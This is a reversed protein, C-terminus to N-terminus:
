RSGALGSRTIAADNGGLYSSVVVPDALVEEASGTAIVSGQELAILRDVVSTLLPMDHEIIMVTLDLEDRMSRIVPELAEAERQAIGSSPEDLMVLRPRHAVLAAIDVIRRSGTSLEHVFKTRYAELGFMGILRDVSEGVALETEFAAPLWLAEMVPNRVDLWREHAVAITQEVTLSPFLAADQFSRGLGAAARRHPAMNTIDTGNMTLHGEDVRTFGSIIDFLTTKGAGNPGILGLIEGKEVRMSVHSVASIGGFRRTVDIIELAPPSHRLDVSEPSEASEVELTEAEGTAETEAHQNGEGDVRVGDTGGVHILGGDPLSDLDHPAEHRPGTVLSPGAGSDAVEHSSVEIEVDASSAEMGKVAGELFVSRLVDPRNLLEATPGSFRVEGKEMFYARDALTLAVNVSQEVVIVTTGQDAMQRVIDLLQAVVLPALGLSLEDIMVLRPHSLFSMGLALMQQQGGSLNAAPEHIRDKLIPFTEYVGDIREHVLSRNHRDMWAAAQLNEAVTLSPFVGRGGPVQVLGKGAIENPPAHTIDVGDFLVAGRDAEAVGCIAKLLTSKGAGNTGLLAVIEGEDVEIDVDFLVQVDGYSVEIGRVLLLKAEGARRQALVESRAASTTWVDEMDRKIFVGASQISLGGIAFMPAMALMGVRIGWADGFVGILPLLVLGPIVFASMMSFGMARSRAPIAVSLAALIGPTLFALSGSILANLIVAVWPLKIEGITIFWAPSLAFGVAFVAVALTVVGLFRFVLSPDKRFLRTGVAAGVILGAIQAPETLSAVVGRSREDLGFEEAYLFSAFSVFGVIAPALFPLTRYIRRLSDVKWCMRWAEVMSPPPEEVDLAEDSAGAAEREWRGRVPEKITLALLSVALIIPGFILFPVRWSFYYAIFGALLPGIFQGVANAGRHFAFVKARHDPSYHDALLSNHTPDIFSKGLGAAGMTIGVMWINPALGVLTSFVALIVGGLVALRVRNYRDALNAIPIQLGLAVAAVFALVTFIGTLGVGFEDAIDPSLVGFATRTLEDVGNLAFLIILVYLPGEGVMSRMSEIPHRMANATRGWRGPTDMPLPATM